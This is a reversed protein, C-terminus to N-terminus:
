QVNLPKLYTVYFNIAVMGSIFTFGATFNLLIMIKLLDAGLIVYASIIGLLTAFICKCYGFVKIKSILDLFSTYNNGFFRKPEYYLVFLTYFISLLINGFINLALFFEEEGGKILRLFTNTDVNLFNYCYFNLSINIVELFLISSFYFLCISKYNRKTQNDSEESYARKSFSYVVYYISFFEFFSFLAIRILIKNSLYILINTEEINKEDFNYLQTKQKLLVLFCISAISIFFPTINQYLSPM